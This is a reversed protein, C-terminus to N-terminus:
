DDTIQPSCEMKRNALVHNLPFFFFGQKGLNEASNMQFISASFM